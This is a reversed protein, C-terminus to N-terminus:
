KHDQSCSTYTTASTGIIFDERRNVTSHGVIVCTLRDRICRYYKRRGINSFMCSGITCITEIIEIDDGEFAETRDISLDYKVESLGYSRYLLYQAVLVGTLILAMVILEM